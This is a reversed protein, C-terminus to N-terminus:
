PIDTLEVRLHSFLAYIAWITHNLFILESSFNLNKVNPNQLTAKQWLAKYKKPSLHVPKEHYWPLLWEKMFGFQWDFNFVEPQKTM